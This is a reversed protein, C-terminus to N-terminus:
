RASARAGGDRTARIGRLERSARSRSWAARTTCLEHKMNPVLTPAAPSWCRAGPGARRAARRGRRRQTPARSSSSRCARADAREERRPARRRADSRARAARLARSCRRAAHVAAPRLRIGVADYIANAIAPIAPHLPGEGAEKAGYPGEPDMSEVILSELEPTDLSTPIRYDLLSPGTTCARVRSSTTSRWAAGRRLGHLRARWRARSSCRTSRAAATTRSGSRRARRRPRDRRRGDVEAVHATFSYAPSAGITGGRYDGGLKPRTTRLRDLRAHRLKAEALQFAEARTMRARRTARPRCAVGSSWRVRRARSAGADRRRAQVIQARLKRARTSARRQRGHVDRPELLRRPRGPTLDTDAAVVRM